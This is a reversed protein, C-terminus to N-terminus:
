RRLGQLGFDVGDGGHWEGARGQAHRAELTAARSELGGRAHERTRRTLQLQTDGEGQGIAAGPAGARGGGARAQPQGNAGIHLGIIDLQTRQRRHGRRGVRQGVKRAHARRVDRPQTAKRAREEIIRVRRGCAQGQPEARHRGHVTDARRLEGIARDGIGLQLREGGGVAQEPAITRATSRGLFDEHAGSERQRRPRERGGAAPGPAPAAAIGEGDSGKDCNAGM